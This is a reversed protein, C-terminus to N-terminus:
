REEIFEKLIRFGKAGSMNAYVRSWMKSSAYNVLSDYDKFLIAFGKGERHFEPAQKFAIEELFSAINTLKAEVRDAIQLSKILKNIDRKTLKDDDLVDKIKVELKNELMDRLNRLATATNKLKHPFISNNYYVTFKGHILEADADDLLSKLVSNIYERSNTMNHYPINIYEDTRLAIRRNGVMKRINEIEADDFFQKLEPLLEDFTKGKSTAVIMPTGHLTIFNDYSPHYAPKLIMYNPKDEKANRWTLVLGHGEDLEKFIPQIIEDVKSETIKFTHVVVNDDLRRVHIIDAGEELAKSMAHNLSSIRQLTLFNYIERDQKSLDLLIKEVENANVKISGDERIYRSLAQKVQPKNYVYKAIANMESALQADHLFATTLRYLASASKSGAHKYFAQIINESWTIGEGVSKNILALANKVTEIDQNIQLKTTTLHTLDTLTEAIFQDTPKDLILKASAERTLRPAQKLSRTIDVAIALNFPDFIVTLPNRDQMGAIKMEAFITGVLTAGTIVDAGLRLMPTLFPRALISGVGLGLATLNLGVSAWEIHNVLRRAKEIAEYKLHGNEQQALYNKLNQNFNPDLQEALASLYVVKAYDRKRLAFDIQKSIFNAVDQLATPDKREKLEQVFDIAYESFGLNILQKTRKALEKPTDYDSPAYAFAKFGFTKQTFNNVQKASPVIRGTITHAFDFLDSISKEVQIGVQKIFKELSM